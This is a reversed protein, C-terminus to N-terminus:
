EPQPKSLHEQGTPLLNVMFLHFCHSIRTVFTYYALTRSDRRATHPEIFLKPTRKELSEDWEMEGASKWVPYGAMVVAYWLWQSGINEVFVYFQVISHSQPPGDTQKHNQRTSEWMENSIEKLESWPDIPSHISLTSGPFIVDLHTVFRVTKSAIQFIECWLSKSISPSEKKQAEQKRIISCIKTNFGVICSVFEM